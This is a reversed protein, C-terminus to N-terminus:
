ACTKLEKELAQISKEFNDEHSKLVKNKLMSWQENEWKEISFFYEEGDWQLLFRKEVLTFISYVSGMEDTEKDIIVEEYNLPELIAKFRLKIQQYETM